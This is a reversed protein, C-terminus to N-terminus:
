CRKWLDLAAVGPVSCTINKTRWKNDYTPQPTQNSPHLGISHRSRLLLVVFCCFAVLELGVPGGGGLLLPHQLVADIEHRLKRRSVGTCRSKPKTKVMKYRNRLTIDGTVDGGWM